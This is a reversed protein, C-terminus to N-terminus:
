ATRKINNLFSIFFLFITVNRIKPYFVVACKLQFCCISVFSVLKIITEHKIRCIITICPVTQLSACSNRLSKEIPNCIDRLLKFEREREREKKREM